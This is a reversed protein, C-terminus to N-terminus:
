NYRRLRKVTQRFSSKIDNLIQLRLRLTILRKLTSIKYIENYNLPTIIALFRTYFENFTKKRKIGIAFTPNYLEIDCKIFKNFDDFISHLEKIIENFLIYSNESLPDARIKIVNFAIFKYHNRIYNM